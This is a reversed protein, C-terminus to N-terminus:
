KAMEWISFIIPNIYSQLAITPTNGLRKSVEVAVKTIAKKREADNKPSPMSKVLEAAAYTGVHTRFDKTKFTGGDLTHTYALLSKDSVSPFIQGDAGAIAAREKLMKVLKPDTVPLDLEVGKKGTFKLRMEKGDDVIHKGLMNTAGYAKKESKTDTDSGPRIGMAMILSLCNALDKRKPDSSLTDKAVQSEIQVFQKNLAEVREFKAAAQTKAFAESYISQLRGKADKGQAQLASNPDSSYHVNTWAPPIKLKAIHEPLAGGTSSSHINVTQGKNNVTQTAVSQSLKAKGSGATFQGHSERPHEIEVFTNSDYVLRNNLTVRM